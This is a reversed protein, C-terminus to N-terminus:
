CQKIISIGENKQTMYYAFSIFYFLYSKRQLWVVINVTCRCIYHVYFRTICSIMDGRSCGDQCPFLLIIIYMYLKYVHLVKESPM